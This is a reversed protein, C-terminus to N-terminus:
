KRTIRLAHLDHAEIRKIQGTPPKITSIFENVSHQHPITGGTM